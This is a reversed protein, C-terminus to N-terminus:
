KEEVELNEESIMYLQLRNQNLLKASSSIIRELMKTRIYLEKQNAFEKESEIAKCVASQMDKALKDFIKNHQIIKVTLEEKAKGIRIAKEIRDNKTQKNDSM